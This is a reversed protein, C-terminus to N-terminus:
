FILIAVLAVAAVIGAVLSFVKWFSKPAKGTAKGTQGNIYCHYQKGNYTYHNAWIPVYTYAFTPNKVEAFTDLKEITEYKHKLDARIKSEVKTKKEYVVDDFSKHIDMDTDLGSFGMIYESTYPRMRSVDFPELEDLTENSLRTNGSLLVNTYSKDETNSAYFHRTHFHEGHEETRTCDANYEMLLRFNFNWTPVYLGSIKGLKAMQKLDSPAFKRTSIWQRFINIAKDRSVSFPVIADPVFVQRQQMSLSLDGCSPCRKKIDGEEFTVTAGCTSCLYTQNESQTPTLMYSESYRQVLRKSALKEHNKIQKISGCHECEMLGSNPNFSFNGGCNECKYVAM